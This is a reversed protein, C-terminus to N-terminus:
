IEQPKSIKRRAKEQKKSIQSKITAKDMENLLRVPLPQKSYLPASVKSKSEEQQFFSQALFSYVPEPQLIKRDM